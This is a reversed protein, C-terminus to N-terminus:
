LYYPFYSFIYMRSRVHTNFPRLLAAVFPCIAGVGFRCRSKHDLMKWAMQGPGGIIEAAPREGATRETNEQRRNIKKVASIILERLRRRAGDHGTAYTNVRASARRYVARVHGRDDRLISDGRANKVTRSSRADCDRPRKLNRPSSCADSQMGSVQKNQDKFGRAEVRQILYM